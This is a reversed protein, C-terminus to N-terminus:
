GKKKFLRGFFGGGKPDQPPPDPKKPAGSAGPQRMEFLRVERQADINRPNLEMVRKFDAHASQDRAARKYLMGRYFHARECKANMAIARDLEAIKEMTAETSQAGPKMASLWTVLALYDAQSPDLALARKALEEAQALDSRKFCIDAKQFAISAEIVNQVERQEAESDGTGKLQAVYAARKAEDTLTAHAESIRAFARAVQERLDALDQPLRDPHWVKALAFFAEKVAQPTADEAVGLVQFHTKNELSGAYDEIERRRADSSRSAVIEGPPPSARRDPTKSTNQEVAAPSARSKSLTIRGLPRPSIPNQTGSAAAAVQSSSSPDKGEARIVGSSSPPPMRQGVWSPEEEEDGSLSPLDAVLDVQKTIALFYVLLNASKEGLGEASGVLEDVHLPRVRLLDTLRREQPRLALRDLQATKSIRLKGARLKVIAPDVHPWPPQALLGLWVRPLPDITVVEAGGYGELLDFDSYFEFSADAPLQFLADIKRALQQALGERLTAASISKRELLIQGHLKGGKSLEVLSADHEAASIAGLELLVRGLYIPEHSSKVKVPKGSALVLTAGVAQTPSAFVFSGSMDRLHSYVLLHALPRSAITGRSTPDM